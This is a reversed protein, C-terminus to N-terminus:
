EHQDMKVRKQGNESANQNTNVHTKEQEHDHPSKSYAKNHLNKM